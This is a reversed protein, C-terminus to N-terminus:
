SKLVPTAGGPIAVLIYLMIMSPKFSPMTLTIFGIVLFTVLIGKSGYRDGLNLVVLFTLSSGLEYGVRGHDKSAM